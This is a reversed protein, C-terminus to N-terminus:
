RVGTLRFIRGDIGNDGMEQEESANSAHDPIGSDFSLFIMLDQFRDAWADRKHGLQMGGRVSSFDLSFLSCLLTTIM